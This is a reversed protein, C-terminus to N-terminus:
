LGASATVANQDVALPIQGRIAFARDIVSVVKSQKQETIYKIVTKLALASLPFLGLERGIRLWRYPLKNNLAWWNRITM